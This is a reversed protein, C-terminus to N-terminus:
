YALMFRSFGTIDGEIEDDEEFRVSGVKFAPLDPAEQRWISLQQEIDDDDGDLDGDDDLDGGLRDYEIKLRAPRNAAFKLGSPKMEFLISDSGVWKVSIFVSDGVAVSDGNPLQALSNRDLRLRLFDEEEGTGCGEDPDDEESFVLAIEQPGGTSRKVFWAGVSDACLAPANIPLQLVNLAEPPVGEDNEDTGDSSCGAMVLAAVLLRTYPKM